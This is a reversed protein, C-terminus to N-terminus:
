SNNENNGGKRKQMAIIAGLVLVGVVFLLACCTFALTLTLSLPPGTRSTPTSPIPTPFNFPTPTVALPAGSVPVITPVYTPTPIATPNATVARPAAGIAKRWADELGDVNFGYTQTLADDVTNGDRLSVLLATMKQQGYTGILFNVLSFSEAYSLNARDSIESFAGSISRVSLLRDQKIAQDLPAQFQADLPGESYVALGENLWQPVFSICSFTLHGVLVHTLEHVVTGHDWNTSSASIGMILINYEPFAQGGTWSPEYLIADQLDQYNPYVYLDIPADAKLGAQKENRDLGDLGAKLLDQAFAPDKGYYHLRLMGGSLTKWPHVSDLWTVTKQDSVTEAGNEDTYRWRWWIQAGPPLSGSQRMDWTWDVNVTKGPTIQPYAKAIVTGCTEEQDGYELVVSTIRSASTIRAHFTINNPFDLAPQDNTVDAPRSASVGQLPLFAIATLILFTIFRKQM